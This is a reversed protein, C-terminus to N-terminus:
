ESEDVQIMIGYNIVELVLSGALATHFYKLPFGLFALL